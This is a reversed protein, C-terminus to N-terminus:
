ALQKADFDGAGFLQLQRAHFVVVAAALIKRSPKRAAIPSCPYSSTGAGNEATRQKYHNEHRQL